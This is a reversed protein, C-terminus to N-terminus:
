QDDKYTQLVDKFEQLLMEWCILLYWDRVEAAHDSRDIKNSKQLM